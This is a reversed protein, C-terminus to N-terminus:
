LCIDHMDDLWCLWIASLQTVLQAAPSYFRMVWLFIEKTVNAPCSFRVLSVNFIATLQHDSINLDM